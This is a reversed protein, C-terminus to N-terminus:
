KGMSPRGMEQDFIIGVYKVVSKAEVNVMVSM